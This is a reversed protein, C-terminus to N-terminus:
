RLGARRLAEEKSIRKITMTWGAPLRGGRPLIPRAQMDVSGGQHINGPFPVAFGVGAGSLAFAKTGRRMNGSATLPPPHRGKRLTSAKLPAWPRGYPDSGTAYEEQLSTTLEPAVKASVAAPLRALEQLNRQLGGLRSFSGLLPVTLDGM